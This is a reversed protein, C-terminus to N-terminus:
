MSLRIREVAAAIHEGSKITDDMTLVATIYKVPKVFPWVEEDDSPPPFSRDFRAVQRFANGNEPRMNNSSLWQQYIDMDFQACNLGNSKPIEALILLETAVRTLNNRYSVMKNIGELIELAHDHVDYKRKLFETIRGSFATNSALSERGPFSDIYFECESKLANIKMTLLGVREQHAERTSESPSSQDKQPSQM